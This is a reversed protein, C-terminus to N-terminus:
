SARRWTPSSRSRGASSRKRSRLSRRTGAVITRERHGVDVSLKLLKSSKPVREAALVKAVRLDVKMPDTSRIRMALACTTPLRRLRLQPRRAAPDRHPAAAPAAPQFRLIARYSENPRHRRTAAELRPWLAEGKVVHGNVRHALGRGSRPAATAPDAPEGVRRLIERASAPMVPLLLVGAIRVTEAVDFLVQGLRGSPRPDKALAWPRTQEICENAAGLLRYIPTQRRRAARLRGDGRSVGGADRGGRRDAARSAPRRSRARRRYREAMADIRSVLNGLNNALDANYREEFREWSFDGDSGYVVEKSWICGCRIPASGIPPRWRISRRHRAVQEDERGQLPVWGHGFVQRPLPLGASM